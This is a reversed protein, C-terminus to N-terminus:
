ERASNAIAMRMYELMLEREFRRFGTFLSQDAAAAAEKAEAEMARAKRSLTNAMTAQEIDLRDILQRQTLGEESWLELLGPFQGPAFGLKHGREQLARSFNKALLTALYTASEMRDFAM